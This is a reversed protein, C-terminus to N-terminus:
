ERKSCLRMTLKPATIERCKSYDYAGIFGQSSPLM